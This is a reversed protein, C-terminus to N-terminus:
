AKLLASSPYAAPHTTVAIAADAAPGCTTADGAPKKADKLAHIAAIDTEPTAPLM